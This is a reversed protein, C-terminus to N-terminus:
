VRASFGDKENEGGISVNLNNTHLNTNCRELLRAYDCKEAHGDIAGCFPCYIEDRKIRALLSLAEELISMFLSESRYGCWVLVSCIFVFM